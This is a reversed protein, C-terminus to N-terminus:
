NSKPTKHAKHFHFPKLFLAEPLLYFRVAIVTNSTVSAAITTINNDVSTIIGNLTNNLQVIQAGAATQVQSLSSTFLNQLAPAYTAWCNFRTTNTGVVSQLQSIQSQLPGVVGTQLLANVGSLETYVIGFAASVRAVNIQYATYFNTRLLAASAGLPALFNTVRTVEKQIQAGFSSQINTVAAKLSAVVYLVANEDITAYQAFSQQIQQATQGSSGSLTFLIATAVVLIKM